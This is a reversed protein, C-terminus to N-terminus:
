KKEFSSVIKRVHEKASAIAADSIDGIHEISDATYPPRVLVRNLVKINCGSWEVRHELRFNHIWNVVLLGM